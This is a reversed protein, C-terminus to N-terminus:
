YPYAEPYEWTRMQLHTCPIGSLCHDQSLIQSCDCTSRSTSKSTVCCRKRVPPRQGELNTTKRKQKKKKQQTLGCGREKKSALYSECDLTRSWRTTRRGASGCRCRTSSHHVKNKNEPVGPHESNYKRMAHIEATDAGPLRRERCEGLDAWM